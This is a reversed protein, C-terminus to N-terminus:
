LKVEAAKRKTKFISIRAAEELLARRDQPKSGLIVEIRGQEILAYSTSGLGTGEFFEHVDKLRCRRGNLYYESEGSRYLRRAVTIHGNEGHLESPLVSGNGNSFEKLTLTVEAVGLAKRQQTGNFIVDEMKGARLSKTSQEGLVWNIADAVNSKGCGNPG